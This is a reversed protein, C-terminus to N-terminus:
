DDRAGEAIWDHILDIEVQPLPLANKPMRAGFPPAPGLKQWLPSACPEGGAIIAAGSRTGGARLTAYTSLDLGSSQFGEGGPAHCSTCARGLIPSVGSRFSAARAPDLDDDCAPVPAPPGVDPALAQLCAPLLCALLCPPLRAALRSM